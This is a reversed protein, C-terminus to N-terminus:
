RQDMVGPESFSIMIVCMRGKNTIYEFEYVLFQSLLEAKNPDHSYHDIFPNSM